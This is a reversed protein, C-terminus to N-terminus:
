KTLILAPSAASCTFASASYAQHGANLGQLRRLPAIILIIYEVSNVESRWMHAM